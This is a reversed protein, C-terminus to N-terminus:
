FSWSLSLDFRFRSPSLLVVALDDCVRGNLFGFCNIWSGARLSEEIEELTSSELVVNALSGALAGTNEPSRIVVWSTVLIFIM